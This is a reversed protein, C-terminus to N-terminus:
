PLRPDMLPTSEPAIRPSPRPGPAAELRGGLRPALPAGSPPPATLRQQDDLEAHPIPVPRSGARARPMPVADPGADRRETQPMRFPVDTRPGPAPARPPRLELPASDRADQVTPGLAPAVDARRRGPDDATAVSVSPPVLGLVCALLVVARGPRRM